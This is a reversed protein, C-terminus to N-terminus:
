RPSMPPTTLTVWIMARAAKPRPSHSKQLLRWRTLEHAAEVQGTGLQRAEEPRTVAKATKLRHDMRSAKLRWNREVLSFIIQIWSQTRTGNRPAM